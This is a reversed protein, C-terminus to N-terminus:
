KNINITIWIIAYLYLAMYPIFRDQKKFMRIFFPLFFCEYTATITSGRASLVHFSSLIILWVTSYLYGNRFTIYHPSIEGLRKENITLLLLLASQYIIMPNHLGQGTSKMTQRNDTYSLALKTDMSWAAVKKNIQVSYLSTLVLAAALIEVVHKKKLPISNLFYTPLAIFASIHFFSAVTVAMFYRWLQRNTIYRLAWVVILIAIGARIQVFHRGFGFRALYLCLVILPFVGYRRIDKYLIFMSLAGVVLLYIREHNTFTKVIVGILYFGFETYGVISDHFTFHFLDKTHYKFGIIYGQTDSWLSPDRFTILFMYVILSCVLMENQKRQGSRTIAMCLIYYVTFLLYGLIMM